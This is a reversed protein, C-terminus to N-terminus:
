RERSVPQAFSEVAARLVRAAGSAAADAGAAHSLDLVFVLTMARRGTFLLEGATRLQFLIPRAVFRGDSHLVYLALPGGPARGQLVHVPLDRDFWREVAYTPLDVNTVALEPHHYLSKLDYSRAVTLMVEDGPARYRREIWDFSEFRRQGWTANRGSPESTYGALTAPIAATSLGDDITAGVYSHIVTPVLALALLGLVAGGYRTAIM